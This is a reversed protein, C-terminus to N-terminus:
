DEFRKARNAYISVIFLGLMSFGVCQVGLAIKHQQPLVGILTILAILPIFLNLRTFGEKYSNQKPLKLAVTHLVHSLMGIALSIGIYIRDLKAFTSAYYIVACTTICIMLKIQRTCRASYWFDLM